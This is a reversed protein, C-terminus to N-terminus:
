EIVLCHDDICKIMAAQRELSQLQVKSLKVRKDKRVKTHDYDEDSSEDGAKRARKKAAKAATVTPSKHATNRAAVTSALSPSSRKHQQKTLKKKKSSRALQFEDGDNDNDNDDDEDDDDDVHDLVASGKKTIAICSKSPLPPYKVVDSFSSSDDGSSISEPKTRPHLTSQKSTVQTKAQKKSEPRAIATISPRPHFLVTELAEDDDHDDDNENEEYKPQCDEEHDNEESDSDNDNDSDSDGDDGVTTIEKVASSSSSKKASQSANAKPTQASKKEVTDQRSNTLPQYTSHPNTKAPTAAARGSLSRTSSSQGGKKDDSKTGKATGVGKSVRRGAANKPNADSESGSSILFEFEDKQSKSKSSPM